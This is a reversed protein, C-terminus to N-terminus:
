RIIEHAGILPQQVKQWVLRNPKRVMVHSITLFKLYEGSEKSPLISFLIKM